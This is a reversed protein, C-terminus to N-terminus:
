EAALRLKEPDGIRIERGKALAGSGRLESLARSLTEPRM